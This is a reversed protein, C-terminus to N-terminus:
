GEAGRFHTTKLDHTAKSAEAPECARPVMGWTGGEPHSLGAWLGDASRDAWVERVSGEAQWM